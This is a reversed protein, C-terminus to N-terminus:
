GLRRFKKSTRKDTITILILGTFRKNIYLWEPEKDLVKIDVNDATLNNLVFDRTKNDNIDILIGDITILPIYQNDAKISQRFFSNQILTLQQNKDTDKLKTLWESAEKFTMNSLSDSTGQGFVLLTLTALISTLILEKM